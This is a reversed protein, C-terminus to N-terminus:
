VPVPVPFLELGSEQASESIICPTRIRVCVCVYVFISVSRMRAVLCHNELICRWWSVGWAGCTLKWIMHSGLCYKLHDTSGVRFTISCRHFLSYYHHRLLSRYFLMYMVPRCINGFHSYFNPVVLLCTKCFAVLWAKNNITHNTKYGQCMYQYKHYVNYKSRGGHELCSPKHLSTTLCRPQVM